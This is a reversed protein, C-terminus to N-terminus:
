STPLQGRFELGGWAELPRILLLCTFLNLVVIEAEEGLDVKEIGGRSVIMVMGKGELGDWKTLM